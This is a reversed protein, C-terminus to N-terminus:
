QELEWTQRASETVISILRETTRRHAVDFFRHVNDWDRAISRSTFQLKIVPRPLEEGDIMIAAAVIDVALSSEDPNKDDELKEFWSNRWNYKGPGNYSPNLEAIINSLKVSKTNQAPQVIMNDYLLECSVPEPMSRDQQSNWSRVEDLISAFRAFMVSFGPYPNDGIPKADRRRWNLAIMNPQFQLVQEQDDSVFWWRKYPLGLSFANNAAGAPMLYELPPQQEVHPFDAEFLSHLGKIDYEQMVGPNTMVTLGVEWVPANRYRVSARTSM